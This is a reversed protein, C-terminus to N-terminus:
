GGMEAIATLSKAGASVACAALALVFSLPHRRGKARRPDSVTVLCDLPHPHEEPGAPRAHTLQGLGAPM